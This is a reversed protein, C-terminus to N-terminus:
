VMAHIAAAAALTSLAALVGQGLARGGRRSVGGTSARRHRMGAISPPSAEAPAVRRPRESCRRGARHPPHCRFTRGNVSIDGNFGEAVRDDGSSALCLTVNIAAIIVGDIQEPRVKHRDIARLARAVAQGM